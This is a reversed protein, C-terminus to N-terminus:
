KGSRCIRSIGSTSLGSIAAILKQRVGREWLERIKENREKRFPNTKKIQQIEAKDLAKLLVNKESSNTRM